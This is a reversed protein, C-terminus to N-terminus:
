KLHMFKDRSIRLNIDESRPYGTTVALALLLVRVLSFQAQSSLLLGGYAM